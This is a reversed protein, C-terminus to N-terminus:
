LHESAHVKHSICNNINNADDCVVNVALLASYISNSCFKFLCELGGQCTLFDIVAHQTQKHETGSESKTSPITCQLNFPQELRSTTIKYPYSNIAFKQATM